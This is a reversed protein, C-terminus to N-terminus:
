VMQRELVMTAAASADKLNYYADRENQGRCKVCQQQQAYLQSNYANM